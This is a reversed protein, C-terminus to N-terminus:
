ATAPPRTFTQVPVPVTVTETALVQASASLLSPM